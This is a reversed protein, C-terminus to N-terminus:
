KGNLDSYVVYPKIGGEGRAEHDHSRASGPLLSDPNLFEDTVEAGVLHFDTQLSSM